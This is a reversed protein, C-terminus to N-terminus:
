QFGLALLPLHDYALGELITLWFLHAKERQLNTTESKGQLILSIVTSLVTMDESPTPDLPSCPLIVTITFVKCHLRLQFM